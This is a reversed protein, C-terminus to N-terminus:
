PRGLQEASGMRNGRREVPDQASLVFAFTPLPSYILESAVKVHSNRLNAGAGNDQIAIPEIANANGPDADALAYHIPPVLPVGIKV